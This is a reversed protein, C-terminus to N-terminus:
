GKIKIGVKQVFLNGVVETQNFIDENSTVLEKVLQLGYGHGDGKTTIQYNGLNEFDIQGKYENSISFILNKGDIFLEILIIKKKEDYNEVAEIANDILVGIIKYFKQLTLLDIKDFVKKDITKIADLYCYIGKSKMTLLKYYMLGKLGGTPINVVKLALEDDDKYKNKLMANIYKVAKDNDSKIMDKIVILQNKNEHNKTRIETIIDEYKTTVELM